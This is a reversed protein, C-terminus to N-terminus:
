ATRPPRGLAARCAAEPETFRWRFGRTHLVSARVLAGELALAAAEGAIWRLPAAPVPVFAPRGLARGLARAFTRQDCPAPGVANFPGHWTDDWLADHLMAVLDDRAVWPFGQRGDGLPGGLGLQFAPAMAPLVGDHGDLVLGIRPHVVRIGAARAPDAAAEWAVATDALFGHGPPASEDVPDRRDGYLGFASASVLVRPGDTAAAMARAVAATGDVRSRVIRAKRAATWRGAIPEGALHVIADLGQLDAPSVGAGTPDWRIEGPGAERRVFRVVTHGGTSLFAALSRGVLGSAGTVGVRLRPRDAYRAHDALDAATIHHRYAFMRDLEARLWPTALWGLPGYPARWHIEDELVAAGGDDRFRHHHTWAAFPGRRAEDVFGAPAHVDRHHAEWTWRLPGVRVRFRAIAGDVLPDAHQLVDLRHWPPVLRDFAGPRLHWDWLTQASADPIRTRVVTTPM